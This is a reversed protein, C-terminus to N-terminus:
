TSIVIIKHNNKLCKVKDWLEDYSKILDIKEENGPILTPYKREDYDKICGNIGYFIICLHKSSYTIRFKHYYIEVYLKEDFM